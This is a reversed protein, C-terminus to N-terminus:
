YLVEENDNFFLDFNVSNETRCTVPYPVQNSWNNLDETDMSDSVENEDQTLLSVKDHDQLSASSATKQVSKQVKDDPKTAFHTMSSERHLRNFFDDIQVGELAKSAYVNQVAKPVYGYMTDTQYNMNQIHMNPTYGSGFDTHVRQQNMHSSNMVNYGYRQQNINQNRLNLSTYSGETGNPVPNFIDQVRRRKNPRIEDDILRQCSDQVQPHVEINSHMQSSIQENTSNYGNLYKRRNLIVSESDDELYRRDKNRPRKVKSNEQTQYRKKPFCLLKWFSPM